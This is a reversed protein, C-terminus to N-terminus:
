DTRTMRLRTVRVSGQESGCLAIASRGEDVVCETRDAGLSLQLRPGSRQLVLNGGQADVPASLTCGSSASDIPALLSRSGLRLGPLAAGEFAIQASFNAFEADALWACAPPEGPEAPAFSLAGNVSDYSLLDGPPRDPALHAPRTRDESDREQILDFDNAFSSRTGLRIGHLTPGAARQDLWVFADSGIAVFPPAPEAPNLEISVPVGEFRQQWPDFRYLRQRGPVARGQDDNGNAILWPRGDSGPLLVPQPAGLPFDLAAIKGDASIWYADYGQASKPGPDPPCGHRCWATCDEGARPAREACGGLALVAGGPLAAFARDFRPPLAVSGDYPAALRLTADADRWELGAVPHGARDLGGAVFLRGDSLKLATPASRPLRLNEVLKSSRSNPTVVEVFSSAASDPGRGGFLAVEGSLLTVAAHHARPVALKLLDPEFSRTSPDYIEASDDLPPSEFLSNEGGAVLLKPGFDSITAFARAVSLVSRVRPDVIESEGTRTDFTLAGVVSSSDTQNSGAVMLLGSSEGFGLAQGGIQDPYSGGGGIDCVEARPWLLVDIRDGVSPAYGVFSQDSFDPQAGAEIALTDLPLRLNVNRASWSLLESTNPTTPFDGLAKLDVQAPTPVPCSALSHVTLPRAIEHPAPARCGSLLWFFM